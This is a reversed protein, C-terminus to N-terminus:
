QDSWSYFSQLQSQRASSRTAKYSKRQHNAFGRLTQHDFVIISLLTGEAAAVCKSWCSEFHTRLFPRYMRIRQVCISTHVAHHQWQLYDFPPPPLTTSIFTSSGSAARRSLYWPYQNMITTVENDVASVADYNSLDGGSNAYLRNLVKFIKARFVHQAMVTPQDLPRVFISTSTLDCDDCNQSHCKLYTSQVLPQRDLCLSQFTDNSCLDWWIRHRLESELDASPM